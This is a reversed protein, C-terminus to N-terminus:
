SRIATPSSRSRKMRCPLTKRMQEPSSRRCVGFGNRNSADPHNAMSSRLGVERSRTSRGSSCSSQAGCRGGAEQFRLPNFGERRPVPPLRDIHDLELATCDGHQIHASAAAPPICTTLRRRSSCFFAGCRSIGGAIRTAFSRVLWRSRSAQHVMHEAHEGLRHIRGAARHGPGHPSASVILAAPRSKMLSKQTRM